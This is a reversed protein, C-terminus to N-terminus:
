KRPVPLSKWCVHESHGHRQCQKCL